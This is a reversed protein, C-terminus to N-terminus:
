GGRLVEGLGLSGVSGAIWPRSWRPAYALVWGRPRCLGVVADIAGPSHRAKAWARPSVELARAIRAEVGYADPLRLAVLVASRVAEGPTSGGGAADTWDPVAADMEERTVDERTLADLHPERVDFAARHTVDKAGWSAFATGDAAVGVVLRERRDDSMSCVAEALSFLGRPSCFSLERRLWSRSKGTAEALASPPLGLLLALAPGPPGSPGVVVSTPRGIDSDYRALFGSGTWEVPIQEEAEHRGVGASVRHQRVLERSVGLRKAIAADPEKGLPQASWDIPTRSTAETQM